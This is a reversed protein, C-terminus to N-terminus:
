FLLSVPDGQQTPTQRDTDSGATFGLWTVVTVSCATFTIGCCMVFGQCSGIELRVHACYVHSTAALLWAV